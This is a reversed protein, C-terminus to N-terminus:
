LYGCLQQFALLSYAEYEFHEVSSTLAAHSTFLWVFLFFDFVLKLKDPSTYM